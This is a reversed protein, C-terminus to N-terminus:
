LCVGGQSCCFCDFGQLFTFQALNQLLYGSQAYLCALTDEQGDEDKHYSAIEDLKDISHYATHHLALLHLGGDLREELTEYIHEEGDQQNDGGHTCKTYVGCGKSGQQCRCTHGHAHGQASVQLIQCAADDQQEKLGVLHSIVYFCLSHASRHFFYLNEVGDDQSHVVLLHIHGITSERASTYGVVATLRQAPHIEGHTHFVASLHLHDLM